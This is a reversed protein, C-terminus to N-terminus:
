CSEEGGIQKKGNEKLTRDVIEKVTDNDIDMCLARLNYVALPYAFETASTKGDGQLWDIIMTYVSGMFSMAAVHANPLSIVGRDMLDQLVDEIIKSFRTNNALRKAEFRQNLGVSEILMIRALENWNQFSLLALTIARCISEVPNNSITEIADKLVIRYMENMEDYLTEFLDEKSSFYFYFTGVSIGAEDVIDKVTTGHYGRAAFIKAGTDLIHKRKADKRVQVEKPTKYVM